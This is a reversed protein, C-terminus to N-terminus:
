RRDKLASGVKAAALIAPYCRSRILTLFARASRPLKEIDIGGTANTKEIGEKM